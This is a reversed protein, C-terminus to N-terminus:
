EEQEIISGLASDYGDEDQATPPFTAEMYRVILDPISKCFPVQPLNTLGQPEFAQWKMADYITRPDVGYQLLLSVLRAWKDAWGHLEHGEKGIILFLEGPVGDEYTSITCYGDVIRTQPGIEEEYIEDEVTRYEVNDERASVIQFKFTMGGREDGLPYRVPNPQGQPSVVQAM